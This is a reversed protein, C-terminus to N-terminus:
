RQAESLALRVGLLAFMAAFSRQLGSLLRPSQLVRHRLACALLGYVIFVACTMLMFVLSLLLLQAVPSGAELTIFQPMFALFFLTLKPNLINLAFARWVIRGAGVRQGSAEFRTPGRDAWASWALFFLYAVGAYKLLQFVLASLHMVAALGLLSAALHPVIGLTCGIAAYLSARVGGFLGSSITFVVGTGPILIVILSTLLFQASPM